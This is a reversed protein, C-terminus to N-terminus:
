LPYQSSALCVLGKRLFFCPSLVDTGHSFACLCPQSLPLDFNQGLSQTVTSKFNPLTYELYPTLIIKWNSIEYLIVKM